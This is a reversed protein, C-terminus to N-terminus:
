ARLHTYSVPLFKAGIRILIGLMADRALCRQRENWLRGGRRRRSRVRRGGRAHDIGAGHMRLNPAMFRSMARYTAHGEFRQLGDRVAARTRLQAIHRLTEPDARCKGYGYEEELHPCM